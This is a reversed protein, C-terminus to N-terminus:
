SLNTYRIVSNEGSKTNANFQAVDQLPGPSPGAFALSRIQSGTVTASTNQTIFVVNAIPVSAVPETVLHDIVMFRRSTDQGVECPDVHITYTEERKAILTEVGFISGIDTTRNADNYIRFHNDATLKVYISNPIYVAEKYKHNDFSELAIEPFDNRLTSLMNIQTQYKSDADFMRDVIDSITNATVTISPFNNAYDLRYTATPAFFKGNLSDYDQSTSFALNFGDKITDYVDNLQEVRTTYTAMDQSPDVYQSLNANLEDTTQYLHKSQARIDSVLGLWEGRLAATDTAIENFILNAVASGTNASIVNANELAIIENFLGTLRVPRMLLEETETQSYLTLM